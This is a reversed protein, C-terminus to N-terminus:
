PVKCAIEYQVQRLLVHTGTAFNTLHTLPDTLDFLDTFRGDFM